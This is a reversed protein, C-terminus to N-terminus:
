GKSTLSLAYPFVNENHQLRMLWADNFYLIGKGWGTKQV